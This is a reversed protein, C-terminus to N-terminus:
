GAGMGRLNEECSRIVTRDIGGLAEEVRSTVLLANAPFDANGPQISSQTQRSLESLGRIIVLIRQRKLLRVVLEASPATEDLLLKDRVTRTFPDTDKDATYIFDQELLVALMPNKRLRKSPDPEMSWRAIECAISMNRDGDSGWILLRTRPKAFAPRVAKVTLAPLMERGLLIPGHVPGTCRAITENSELSTRASEVRRVVWADLVRDRHRFFGVLFLHSVSIELGGLWGPLKVKPIPQLAENIKFLAIPALWLLSIWILALGLYGGIAFAVRPQARIPRLLQWKVDHRRIDQLATVAGTVISARAKVSRDPSQAMAAAAKQLSEIAETRRAERLAGAIGSLSIGVSRRVASNEDDLAKTLVPVSPEAMLGFDGLAQAARARVQGDEADLLRTPIAIAELQNRGIKALADAAELRLEDKTGRLMNVLAPAAAQADPGIAGLVQAAYWTLDDEKLMVILAPVATRAAPGFKILADMAERRPGKDEQLAALLAPVALEPNQGISGLSSAAYKRVLEDKDRLAEILAPVATKMDGPINGLTAAADMRVIQATDRMAEILAPIAKRTQESPNNGLDKAARDRVFADKNGLDRINLSIIDTSEQARGGRPVALAGVQQLATVADNVDPARAKVRGDPSKEMATAAKHLPEIAETRRAKGLAAAITSLAVATSWRVNSNEDELAKTLAPVSPEAIPGFDGLVGAARMRDRWDEAVLARTAIPVAEAQNRGIKALADAAELRREDTTGRLANALAPAAAQADPGIGGLVRAAFWTLDDEKLMVILAPVTTRAAPGFKILADMAEQRPGRDEQLAALLAPVASEPKQGISGLSRAASERVSEDKDQLAEILAPVAVQRDGPIKGLALAAGRRVFQDTDKLAEILAPIAKRTQESANNVLDEVARIRVRANENKLGQIDLSISDTSEQARGGPPTALAGALFLLTLMPLLSIGERADNRFIWRRM